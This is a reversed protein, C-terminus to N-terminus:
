EQFVYSGPAENIPPYTNSGMPPPRRRDGARREIWCAWDERWSGRHRCAGSLWDAAELPLEDNMWYASKPGPPNVFSAIHGSSSLVFRTDGGLLQTTKYSSQWPVIHDEKAAVIFVDQSVAGLQLSYGALKMKGQALKNELYCSRLLFSHVHRPIRTGDSNWALVDFAPANEGALWRMGVYSWILDNARLFDFTRKLDVSDMYGLKAMRKELLAVSEEDVFCGLVGPDSFDVAANILTASRVKNERRASLYALLIAALTGGLCLGLVNVEKSGTIDSIVNLAAYPGQLLYDQLTLERIHADPNRYSISFLTHGQSVAWEIFSRGPALDMIYYKNIWAPSYLLPIEFVTKTKPSYQILEILDNRFVVKGPTAALDVGVKYASRDVQSPLGKNGGLDELFNQVGALLSLGGTELATSLAVPNGWLYNTPALADIMSNAAFHAKAAARPDLAAADVVEMMLRAWLLYSQLMGFFWANQEWVEGRFRADESRPAAPGPRQLGVARMSMAATAAAQGAVWRSWPTLGVWPRLWLAAGVRALADGFGMPDVWALWDGKDGGAAVAGAVGAERLVGGAKDSERIGMSNRAGRINAFPLYSRSAQNGM